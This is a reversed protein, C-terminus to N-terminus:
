YQVNGSYWSQIYKTSTITIIDSVSRSYMDSITNTCEIVTPPTVDITLEHSIVNTESGNDQECTTYKEEGIYEIYLDDVCSPYPYPAQMHVRIGNYNNGILSFEQSRVIRNNIKITVLDSYIEVEIINPGYITYFKTYTSEINQESTIVEVSVGVTKVSQEGGDTYDFWESGRILIKIVGSEDNGFYIETEPISTDELLNYILRVYIPPSVYEPRVMYLVGQVEGPVLYLKGNDIFYEGNTYVGCHWTDTSPLEDFPEHIHKISIPRDSALGLTSISATPHKCPELINNSNYEITIEDIASTGSDNSEIYLMIDDYEVDITVEEELITENNVTIKIINNEIYIDITYYQNQLPIPETQLWITDTYIYIRLNGGSEAVEVIICPKEMNEPDGLFITTTEPMYYQTIDYKLQIHYPPRNNNRRHLYILSGYELILNGSETYVDGYTIYDCPWTSVSPMNDFTEQIIANYKASLETYLEDKIVNEIDLFNQSSLETYTETQLIDEINLYEPEFHSTIFNAQIKNEASVINPTTISQEFMTTISNETDISYGTELNLEFETSINNEVNTYHGVITYVDLGCNISNTVSVTNEPQPTSPVIIQPYEPPNPIQWMTPSFPTTEWFPLQFPIYVLVKQSQPKPIISDLIPATIIPLFPSIVATAFSKFSPEEIFKNFGKKIMSLSANVVYLQIFKDRFGKIWNNIHNNLSDVFGSAFSVITNWANRLMSVIWNIATVILNWTSGFVWNIGNWIWMGFNYLQQGIYSLGSSIWQLGSGIWQALANYGEKLRDALWQLANYLQDAIWELGDYLWKAFSVLGGYIWSGLQSLPDLISGGISQLWNWFNGIAGVIDDWLTM